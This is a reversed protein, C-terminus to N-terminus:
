NEVYRECFRMFIEAVQARAAQGQPSLTSSSTGNILGINVAWDMAELAYGSIQGYDAYERIAIGGQTTDYGEHRAFRCLMVALQERTIPDDPGFLGGGYGEAIGESIAWRIAEGYYAAPNVDSFDMLYNVVPSDSLRWLITVIMARSATTDPSFTTAGTGNMLGNEYVYRVADEYWAGEPVDDFPLLEEQVPRFTVEITVRSRPQIFTWTEDANETIDVSDGNRDTVIIEGVEYGPEPTPTVTVEDGAKPTRPIVTITGEGETDLNPSYSPTSGSGGGSSPPVAAWNATVTVDEAPMTFTTQAADSDALIGATATWGAFVYGSRSGADLSVQEGAEYRGAGTTEAYSNEVTLAYSLPIIEIKGEENLRYSGGKANITDVFDQTHVDVPTGNNTTVDKFVDEDYYNGTCTGSGSAVIPDSNGDTKTVAGTSVCTQIPGSSWGAIGGTNLGATSNVKGKNLCNKISGGSAYGTIGGMYSAKGTVNGENTCSDIKEADDYQMGVIGGVKANTSSTRGAVDITGSNVCYSIESGQQSNGVIGGCDAYGSGMITLTGTYSCNVVQSGVAAGAVGGIYYFKFNLTIGTGSVCNEVQTSEAVGVIGGVAQGLTLDDSSSKITFESTSCNRIAGGVIYGAVAGVHSGSADSITNTLSGTLNVNQITAETIGFLGFYGTTDKTITLNSVTHGNGEFTGSFYHSGDIGIPTWDYGSMNIDAGLEVTVDAIGAYDGNNVAAAFDMLEEATTIVLNEPAAKKTVTVTYTRLTGDQSTVVVSVANEGEQLSVSVIYDHDASAAMGNITVTAGSDSPIAQVRITDITYDVFSTYDQTVNNFTPELLAGELALESLYNDSEVGIPKVSGNLLTVGNVTVTEGTQNTVTGDTAGDVCTIHFVVDYLGGEAFTVAKEGCQVGNSLLTVDRDVGTLIIEYEDYTNFTNLFAGDDFVANLLVNLSVSLSELHRCNNLISEGVDTVSEPLTFATFATSAFAMSGISTVKPASISELPTSYFAREGITLVEPLEISTIATENFAQKGITELKLATVAALVSDGRFADEGITIVEPMEISELTEIRQFAYNEITTVGPMTISTLKEADSFAFQGITTVTDPLTVSELTEDGNFASRGIETVGDPITLDAADGTYDTVVTGEIVLGEPINTILPDPSDAARDPINSVSSEPSDAALAATPMLGVTLVVAMICALIRHKM